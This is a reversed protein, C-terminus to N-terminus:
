TLSLGSNRGAKAFFGTEVLDLDFRMLISTEQARTVTGGPVLTGDDCGQLLGNNVSWIATDKM